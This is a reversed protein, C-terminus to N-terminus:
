VKQSKVKLLFDISLDEDLLPWHVGYGSPSIKFFNREIEDALELKKSIKNLPLSILNGNINLCLQNHEFSVSEINHIATM